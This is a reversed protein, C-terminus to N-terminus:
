KQDAQVQINFVQFFDSLDRHQCSYALYNKGRNDTVNDHYRQSKGMDNRNKQCNGYSKRKWKSIKSDDLKLIAIKTLYGIAGM